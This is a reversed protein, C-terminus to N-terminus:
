QVAGQAGNYYQGHQVQKEPSPHLSNNYRRYNPKRPYLKCYVFYLVFHLLFRSGDTLSLFFDVAM